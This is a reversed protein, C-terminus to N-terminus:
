PWEPGFDDQGSSVRDLEEQISALTASLVKQAAALDDIADQVNWTATTLLNRHRIGRIEIRRVKAPGM